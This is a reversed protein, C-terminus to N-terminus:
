PRRLRAALREKLEEARAEAEDPRLVPCDYGLVEKMAERAAPTFEVLGGPGIRSIGDGRQARENIRQAEEPSMGPPWVVEAGDRRLRVDYGGVLGAPGPVHTVTPDGRLFRLVNKVASEATRPGIARGKPLLRGAEALLAGGGLEATVDRGGVLVRLWFPYDALSEVEELGMWFYVVHFHHGLMSVEVEGVPVGLRRAAVSRIGAWLLDSNGAGCAPAMGLHGLVPNVADPFSVNVVPAALGAQARGRMLKLVLTLHLPLWPGFRAGFELRRWLESPFQTIIWWSQLTAAQVIVDPRAMGLAEAVQGESRMDLARFRVEPARDRYAATAAADAVAVELRPADADFAWLGTVEPYGALGRLVACGIDGAGFM